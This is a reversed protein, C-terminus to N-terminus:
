LESKEGIQTLLMDWHDTNPYSCLTYKNHTFFKNSGSNNREYEQQVRRNPAYQISNYGHQYRHWEPIVM